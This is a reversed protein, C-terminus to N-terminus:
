GPPLEALLTTCRTTPAAGARPTPGRAIPWRNGEALATVWETTAIRRAILWPGGDRRELRDLYRFGVTLNRRPDPDDSRHHSIGYTEAVAM